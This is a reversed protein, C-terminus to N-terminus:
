SQRKRIANRLYGNLLSGMLNMSDPGSLVEEVDVEKPESMVVVLDEKELARWELDAL